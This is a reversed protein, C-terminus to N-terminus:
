FGIFLLDSANNMVHNFITNNDFVIDLVISKITYNDIVRLMTLKIIFIYCKKADIINQRDTGLHNVISTRSSRL